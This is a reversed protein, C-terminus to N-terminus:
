KGIYHVNVFCLYSSLCLNLTLCLLCFNQASSLVMISLVFPMIPQDRNTDQVKHFMVNVHCTYHLRANVELSIKSRRGRM